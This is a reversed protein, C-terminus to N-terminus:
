PTDKRANSRAADSAKLRQDGERLLGGLYTGLYAGQTQNCSPFRVMALNDRILDVDAKVDDASLCGDFYGRLWMAFQEPTM